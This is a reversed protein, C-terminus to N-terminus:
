GNRCNAKLAKALARPGTDEVLYDLERSLKRRWNPREFVTGPLNIQEPEGVLDDLQIMFLGARSRALYLHVAEILEVSRGHQLLGEEELARLLLWRDHARADGEERRAEETRYLGHRFRLALDNGEMFGRLTPLDHTSASALSLPPYEDPRKFRDGEKEFYLVRYSLVGAESMRERFGEPVTGLDEGIVVCRNRQSELALIGLLDEIPYKVYAGSEPFAGAPIWFMRQLGMVHDVRLAGAYRMNARVVAIFHRYGSRRLDHPHLPASGWDQGLSNFPDPPAGIRGAQVIVDQRAWADAGDPAVSASLDCYIGTTM